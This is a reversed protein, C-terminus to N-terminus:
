RRRHWNIRSEEIWGSAGNEVDVKLWLIQEDDVYVDVPRVVVGDSLWDTVRVSADPESRLGARQEGPSIGSMRTRGPSWEFRNSSYEQVSKDVGVATGDFNRNAYSRIEEIAGSSNRTLAHTYTIRSSNFRTEHVLHLLEKPDGDNATLWFTEITENEHPSSGAVTHSRSDIALEASGDGTIDEVRLSFPSFTAVAGGGTLETSLDIVVTRDTYHAEGRPIALLEEDHPSMTVTTEERPRTAFVIRDIDPDLGPLNFWESPFSTLHEAAVRTSVTALGVEPHLTLYFHSNGAGPTAFMHGIIPLVRGPELAAIPTSGRSVPVAFASEEVIILQSKTDREKRTQAGPTEIRDPIPIVRESSVGPFVDVQRSFERAHMQRPAASLVPPLSLIAICLFFRLVRLM